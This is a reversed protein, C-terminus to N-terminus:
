PPPSQREGVAPQFSFDFQEITRQYPFHALKTRTSLYRESRAEVEASLLQGLMEPHTLQKAAPSDLINDLIEM